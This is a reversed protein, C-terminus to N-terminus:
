PGTRTFAATYTLWCFHKYRMFLHVSLVLLKEAATM